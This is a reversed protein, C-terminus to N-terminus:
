ADAPHLVRYLTPLCPVARAPIRWRAKSAHARGPSSEDIALPPQREADHHDLGHLGDSYDVVDQGHRPDVRNENARVVQGHGGAELRAVLTPIRAVALHDLLDGAGGFRM